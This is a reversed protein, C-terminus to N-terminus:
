SKKIAEDEEEEKPVEIVVSQSFFDHIRQQFIPNIIFLFPFYLAQASLILLLTRVASLPFSLKALDKHLVAIKLIKAGITQGTGSWFLTFYTFQLTLSAVLLQTTYRAYFAQLVAVQQQMTGTLTLAQIPKGLFVLIAILMLFTLFATDILYALARKWAPAFSLAIPENAETLTSEESDKFDNM